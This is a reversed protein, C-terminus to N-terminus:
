ATKLNLLNETETYDYLAHAAKFLNLADQLYRIRTEGNSHRGIERLASAEDRPMSLKQAAAASAQWTRLARAHRDDMWEFWGLYLLYSPKGFPFTRQFKRLLGLMSAATKRFEAPSRFGPVDFPKGRERAEFIIQALPREGVHLSYLQPPLSKLIPLSKACYQMAKEEAQTRWFALARIGFLHTLNIPASDFSEEDQTAKLADEFEGRVLNLLAFGYITWTLYLNNGSGKMLSYLHNYPENCLTFDRGRAFELGGLIVHSNGELMRDAARRSLDRATHLAQTATEWEGVGLKYTGVALQTWIQSHPDDVQASAQLAKQAYHEALAHNPITGLIASTTGLSWVRPPSMSGGSESLNLGKLAHYVMSFTESDIFSIYSLNTHNQAAEQLERDKTKNRGIFLGPFQRHLSQITFQLLLGALITPPTSASSYKLVQTARRFYGRASELQGLGMHAEGISRLWFAHRILPIQENNANEIKEIAQTFFQIAERYAGNHLALLGAKEFYELAKPGVEAQKWHYALAPYHTPANLGFAEEYWEAIARHLSRRQSFLLLNYAV